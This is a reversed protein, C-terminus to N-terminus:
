ALIADLTLRDDVLRGNESSSGLGAFIELVLDGRKDGEGGGVLM